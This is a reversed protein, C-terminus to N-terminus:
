AEDWPQLTILLNEVDVMSVFASVMPYRAVADDGRVVLVDSAVGEEVDEVVGLLNGDTDRAEMGVIQWVFWEDPGLSRAQDSDVSLYADKLVAAHEPDDIGDFGLLVHTGQARSSRVVLSRAGADVHLRLGPTFRSVAGGLPEARVEGRLGHARLVHAVRLRPPAAKAKM